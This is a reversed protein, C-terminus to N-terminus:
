FFIDFPLGILLILIKFVTSIAVLAAACEGSGLQNTVFAYCPTSGSSPMVDVGMGFYAGYGPGGLLSASVGWVQMFFSPVGSHARHILM